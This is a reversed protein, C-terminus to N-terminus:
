TYSNAVTFSFCAIFLLCLRLCSRNLSLSPRLSVPLSRTAADAASAASARECSLLLRSSPRTTYAFPFCRAHTHSSQASCRSYCVTCVSVKYSCMVTKATRVTPPDAEVLAKPVTVTKSPARGLFPMTLVCCFTQPHFVTTAHLSSSRETPLAAAAAATTASAAATTVAAKMRSVSTAGSRDGDGAAAAATATLAPLQQHGGLSSSSGVAAAAAAAADSHATLTMSKKYTQKTTRTSTTREMESM